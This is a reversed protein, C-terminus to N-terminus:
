QPDTNEGNDGRGTSKLWEEYTPGSSNNDSKLTQGDPMTAGKLSKAATLQEDTWGTAESLNAGSLDAHLLIADRLETITLDAHGLDAYTLVADNLNAHRLYAGSLDAGILDTGILDAGTEELMAAVAYCGM